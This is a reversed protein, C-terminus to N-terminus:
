KIRSSAKNRVITATTSPIRAPHAKDTTKVLTILTVNKPQVMGTWKGHASITGTPTKNNPTPTNAPNKGASRAARPELRRTRRDITYIALFLTFPSLLRSHDRNRIAAVSIDNGAIVANVAIGANEANVWSPQRNAPGPYSNQKG